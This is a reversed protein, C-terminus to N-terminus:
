FNVKSASRSLVQTVPTVKANKLEDLRALVTNYKKLPIDESEEAIEVLRELAYVNTIKALEAELKKLPSKMLAVLEETGLLNPNGAMEKVDNEDVLKVPVFAGNKFIDNHDEAVNRQYYIREDRTLQVSKTPGVLEHLVKGYPDLRLIGHMGASVNKWTELDTNTVM